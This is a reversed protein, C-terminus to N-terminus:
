KPAGETIFGVLGIYPGQRVGLMWFVGLKCGKGKSSPSQEGLLPATSPPGKGHGPALCPEQM